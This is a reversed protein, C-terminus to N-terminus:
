QKIKVINRILPIVLDFQRRQIVLDKKVIRLNFRLYKAVGSFADVGSVGIGSDQISTLTTIQLQDLLNAADSISVLIPSPFSLSEQGEGQDIVPVFISPSISDLGSASDFIQKIIEQIVNVADEGSGSDSISIDLSVTLADIGVGADEESLTVGIHSVVDSGEGTDFLSNLISVAISLATEGSGSDNVYAKASLAGFSDTGSGTDSLSIITGQGEQYLQNIETSTLWSRYRFDFVKLQDILCDMQGSARYIRLSTYHTSGKSSGFENYTEEIQLNGDVWLQVKNDSTRYQYVFHYWQNLNPSFGSSATNYRNINFGKDQHSGSRGMHIRAAGYTRCLVIGTNAVGDSLGFIVPYSTNSGLSTFKVWVSIAMDNTLKDDPDAYGWEDNDFELAQGIKGTVQEPLNTGTLTIDAGHDTEDYLTSGSVNDMTYHMFLPGYDFIEAICFLRGAPQSTYGSTADAVGAENSGSYHYCQVGSVAGDNTRPIDDTASDNFYFSVVLNKSSDISFSISDSKLGNEDVSAGNNGGFTVRTPTGDFDYPDGSSAQHGIFCDTFSWTYGSIGFLHLQTEESDGSILSSSIVIRLNFGVWDTGVTAPSYTGFILTPAKLTM